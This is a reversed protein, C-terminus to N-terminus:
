PNLWEIKSLDVSESGRNYHETQEKSGHGLIGGLLEASVGAARAKTAFTVRLSHFGALGAANSEIRLTELAQNFEETSKRDADAALKPLIHESDHPLSGLLASVMPPLRILVAKGLRATKAPVHTLVGDNIESWRLTAVCKYRLGTALAIVVAARWQSRHPLRSATDFYDLVRRIEDDTLPRIVGSASEGRTISKLPVEAFVKLVASLDGRVNNWTKGKCELSELYAAADSAKVAEAEKIRRSEAWAAFAKWRHLRKAKSSEALLNYREEAAHADWAM